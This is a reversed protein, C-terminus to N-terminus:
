VNQRNSLSRHKGATLGDRIVTFKPPLSPHRCIFQARDWVEFGDFEKRHEEFLTMARNIAAEDSTDPVLEIAAIHGDRMFYCRM